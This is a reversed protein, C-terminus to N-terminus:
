PTFPRVPEVFHHPPFARNLSALNAPSAQNLPTSNTLFAENSLAFRGFHHRGRQQPHRRRPEGAGLM